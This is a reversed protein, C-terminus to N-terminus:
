KKDIFWRGRHDITCLFVDKADKVGRSELERKLWFRTQGIKELGEKQVKGDMILPVPPGVFRFDPPAKGDKEDSTKRMDYEDKTMLTLRGTPELVAFEVDAVNMVNKERLQLMLDDLSYRQKKMEERDLKGNSILPSAKGEFLLRLRRSKLTAFAIAIQLLALLLMPGIGEWLPREPSEVVIVALETIMISIVLDFVSLKGIERKGMMRIALYIVFYILVTRSFITVAEM